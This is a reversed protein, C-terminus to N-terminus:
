CSGAQRRNACYRDRICMELRSPAPRSVWNKWIVMGRMQVFIRVVRVKKILAVDSAGNPGGSTMAKVCLFAM